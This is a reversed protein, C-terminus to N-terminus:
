DFDFNQLGLYALLCITSNFSSGTQQVLNNIKEDLYKSIRVTKVLSKDRDEIPEREPPKKTQEVARGGGRM